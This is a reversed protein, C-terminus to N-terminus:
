YPTQVIIHKINDGNDILMSASFYSTTKDSDSFLNVSDVTKIWQNKRDNISQNKWESMSQDM